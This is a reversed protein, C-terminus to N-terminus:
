PVRDLASKVRSKYATDVRVSARTCAVSSALREGEGGGARIATQEVNFAAMSGDDVIAEEADLVLHVALTRVKHYGPDLTRVDVVNAGARM